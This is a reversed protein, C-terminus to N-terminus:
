RRDMLSRIARHLDKQTVPKLLHRARGLTRISKANMKESFGTCLIVPLDRRLARVKGILDAGDMGPMNMDTLLLDFKEPADAFRELAEQPSNAVTVTYGLNELIRQLMERLESEDDVVLLREQGRQRQEGQMAAAPQQSVEHQVTPALQPLYIRFTTGKDPESYVSIHGRHFSVIGHVVSLGLGTGGEGSRTSFYPDYIKDLTDRDMGYGSDSVQLVLYRGPSLQLDAALPDTHHIDTESLEFVLRGGKERMAQFANTGLNMLIQHIQTADGMIMANAAHIESEISITTPILARLMKVTDRLLEELSVPVMYGGRQRSFSLIRHVLQKARDASRLVAELDKGAHCISRSECQDIHIKALETYGIIASLINNFDHAIGGALTGIAEMKQSQRLQLELKDKLEEAKLREQIEHQLELNTKELEQIRKRLEPYYSKKLSREGLGIIRQLMEERQQEDSPKKM